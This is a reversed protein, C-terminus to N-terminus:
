KKQVEKNLKTKEFVNNLFLTFEIIYLKRKPRQESLKRLMSYAESLRLITEELHQLEQKYNAIFIEYEVEREKESKTYININQESLTKHLMIFWKEDNFKISEPYNKLFISKVEIENELDKRIKLLSDEIPILEEYNRRNYAKSLITKSFLLLIILTAVTYTIFINPIIAVIIIPLTTILCLFVLRQYYKKISLIRM